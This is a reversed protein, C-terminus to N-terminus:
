GFPSENLRIEELRRGRTEVASFWLVLASVAIPIAALIAGATLGTVLSWAGVASGIVGGLKSSGAVIGAGTARVELPYIETSYPLLVAIVGSIAILLIVLLMTLLWPSYIASDIVSFSVLSAGTLVVFTVLTKKSSWTYYLWTVVFIGPLALLASKALVANSVEVSLGAARLNAPMWLMFGFNALGWAVGCLTLGLTLFTYPAQILVSPSHRRHVHEHDVHNEARRPMAAELTVGFKSLLQRAEDVRGRLCLFRPSEPLYRNLVILVLGSPVGAFWLARWGFSPELLVANATAALYGGATGLGGVLVMMWGRHHAPAIEAILTFAIPLLGGVSMGMLFCMALNWEFAPMAGCISTGIFMLASLLIAARRGVRDALLGWLMSGVTTGVLAALPFLAITRRDLQYEASMGPIALGLTAPKMVDVIVAVTLMALLKWHGRKLPADDIVRLRLHLDSPLADLHHHSRKPLLGFFAAIAGMVIAGMGAIMLGDMPMGAMRYDSAASHIFMPLHSLVGCVIGATGLWFFGPRYFTLASM